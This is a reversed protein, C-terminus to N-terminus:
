PTGGFTVAWVARLGMVLLLVAFLNAVIGAAGDKLKAWEVLINRAGISAHIATLIVFVAYFLAWALNDQTRGLVEAASLGGRIAYVIVVLHVVVFVAMVMATIRQWYWRKAARVATSAM